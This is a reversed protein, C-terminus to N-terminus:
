YREKYKRYSEYFSIIAYLFGIYFVDFGVNVIIVEYWKAKLCVSFILTLVIFIISLLYHLRFLKKSKIPEFM